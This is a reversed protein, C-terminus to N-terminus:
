NLAELELKGTGTRWNRDEMKPRATVNSWTKKVLNGVGVLIEL